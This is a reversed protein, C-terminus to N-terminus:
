GLYVTYNRQGKLSSGDGFHLLHFLFQLPCGKLRTNTKIKMGWRQISTFENDNGDGSTMSTIEYTGVINPGDGSQTSIVYTQALGHHALVGLFFSLILYHLHTKM